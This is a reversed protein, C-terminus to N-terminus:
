SEPPRTPLSRTLLRAARRLAPAPPPLSSDAEYEILGHNVENGAEQLLRRVLNYWVIATLLQVMPLITHLHKHSSLAQHLSIKLQSRDDIM